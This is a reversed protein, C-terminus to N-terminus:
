TVFINLNLISLCCNLLRFHLLSFNQCVHADQVTFFYNINKNNSLNFYKFKFNWIFVDNIGAQVRQDVGLKRTRRSSQAALFSPLSHLDLWLRQREGCGYGGVCCCCCCYSRGADRIRTVSEQRECRFTESPEDPRAELHASGTRIPRIWEPDSRIKTPPLTDCHSLLFKM